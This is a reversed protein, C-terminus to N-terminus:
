TFQFSFLHQGEDCAGALTAEDDVVALHLRNWSRRDLAQDVRGAGAIKERRPGQEANRANEGKGPTCRNARKSRRFYNLVVARSRFARKGVQDRLGSELRRAM